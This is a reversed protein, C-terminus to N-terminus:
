DLGGPLGAVMDGDSSLGTAKRGMKESPKGKDLLSRLPAREPARAAAGFIAARPSFNRKM